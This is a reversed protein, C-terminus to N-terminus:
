APDDGPSTPPAAQSYDTMLSAWTTWGFAADRLTQAWIQLVDRTLDGQKDPSLSHDVAAKALTEYTALSQQGYKTAKAITEKMRQEPKKDAV